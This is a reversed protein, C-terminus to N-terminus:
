GYRSLRVGGGLDARAVAGCSQMRRDDATSTAVQVIAAPRTAVLGMLGTAERQQPPKRPPSGDLHRNQASNPGNHWLLNHALRKQSAEFDSLSLVGVGSLKADQLSLVLKNVVATGMTVDLLEEARAVRAERLLQLHHEM